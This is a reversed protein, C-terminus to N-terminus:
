HLHFPQVVAPADITAHPAIAHYGWVHVWTNGTRLTLVTKIMGPGFYQLLVFIVSLVAASFTSFNTWGDFLHVAAYSLGGLVVTVPVSGTIRHLRPLLIGYIIVAIPLVTGVFNIAFSAAVAQVAQSGSLAFLEEGFLTLEFLSEVALIILILKLDAGRDASRLNLQENSYGRRRFYLYPLVAYVILNYGAWVFVWGASPPNSTGFLAGPLHLSIAHSGLAHGIVFGAAQAVVVYGVILGAERIASPREPARAAMDPVVRRRTVLYTIAILVGAGLLNLWGNVIQTLPSAGDLLPRDFPLTDGALVFAIVSIAVWAFATIGVVLVLRRRQPPRTSVQDSMFCAELDVTCLQPDDGSRPKDLVAANHGRLL